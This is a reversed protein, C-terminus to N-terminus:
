RSSNMRGNRAWWVTGLECGLEIPCRVGSMIGSARGRVM